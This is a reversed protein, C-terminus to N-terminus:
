GSTCRGQLTPSVLDEMGRGSNGESRTEVAPLPGPLCLLPLQHPPSDPLSFALIRLGPTRAWLRSEQAPRKLSGVWQGM